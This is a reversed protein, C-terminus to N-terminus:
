IDQDPFKSTVFFVIMGIDNVPVLGQIDTLARCKGIHLLGPFQLRGDIGMYKVSPEPKFAPLDNLALM